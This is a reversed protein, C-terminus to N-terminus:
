IKRTYEVERAEGKTLIGWSENVAVTAMFANEQLSMQLSWAFVLWNSKLKFQKRQTEEERRREEEENDDKDDEDKEKEEEEEEEKSWEHRANEYERAAYPHFLLLLIFPLIFTVHVNAHSACLLTFTISVVTLM